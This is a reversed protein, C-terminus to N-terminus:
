PPNLLPAHAGLDASDSGSMVLKSGFSVTNNSCFVDSALNPPVTQVCADLISDFTWEDRTSPTLHMMAQKAVVDAEKVQDRPGKSLKGRGIKGLM